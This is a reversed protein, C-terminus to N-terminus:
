KRLDDEGSSARAKEICLSPAPTAATQRSPQTPSETTPKPKGPSTPSQQSQKAKLEKIQVDWDAKAKPTCDACYGHSMPIPKGYPLYCGKCRLCAKYEDIAPRRIARIEWGIFGSAICALILYLVDTM